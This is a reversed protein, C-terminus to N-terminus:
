SKKELDLLRRKLPIGGGFGTMSGDSGIIRHCPIVIPIPNAGNAAGVARVAKPNGIAKAIEGYSRTQGYPVKRVAEWVSKQFDTGRLDLLLAFEKRTGNFYELLQHAIERNREKSEVLTADPFHKQLYSIPDTRSEDPLMVRVLGRDSSAVLLRGIPTTLTTHYIVNM